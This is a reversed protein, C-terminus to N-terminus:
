RLSWSSRLGPKLLHHTHNTYPVCWCRFRRSNPRHPSAFTRRILSSPLRRGRAGSVPQHAASLRTEESARLHRTPPRDRCAAARCAQRTRTIRISVDAQISYKRAVPDSAATSTRRNSESSASSTAIHSGTAISIRDRAPSSLLWAFSSRSTLPKGDNFMSLEISKRAAACIYRPARRAPRVTRLILSQKIAATAIRWLARIRWRSLSKSTMVAIVLRTAVDNLYAARPCNTFCGPLVLVSPSRKKGAYLAVVVNVRCAPSPVTARYAPLKSLSQIPSDRSRDGGM